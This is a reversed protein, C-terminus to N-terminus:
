PTGWAPRPPGLPVHNRYEQVLRPGDGDRDLLRFYNGHVNVEDIRRELEATFEPCEDPCPFGDLGDSDRPAHVSCRENSM